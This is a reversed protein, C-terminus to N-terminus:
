FEQVKVESPADKKVSFIIQSPLDPVDAPNTNSLCVVVSLSDAPGVSAMKTVRIKMLESLKSKVDKMRQNMIARVQDRTRQATFLPNRTGDLMVELMVVIGYNDLYAAKANTFVHAGTSEVAADIDSQLPAMEKRFTDTQSSGTLMLLCLITKLM